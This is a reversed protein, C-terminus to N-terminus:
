GFRPRGRGTTIRQLPDRRPKRKDEPPKMKSIMHQLFLLSGDNIRPLGAGFRGTFGLRFAEDKVIDQINKWGMGFPPASILYDFTAGPFGDQSLSNGHVIRDAGDGKMLMNSRCIAYTQANLEQGFVEVTASPDNIEIQRCAELLAGGIGCAPDYVTRGGADQDQPVLLDVMVRVVDRPTFYEGAADYNTEAFAHVLEEFVAGMRHDSVTQPRLDFEAFRSVVPYLLRAEDLRRIQRDFDYAELVDAVLASYGALYYRLNRAVNVPDTALSQFSLRSTNYFPLGTTERLVADVDAVGEADLQGFRTLVEEKTPQLMLDLRRLLTFPEIVRGYESQRYDGRLLDAVSWVLASLDKAESNM